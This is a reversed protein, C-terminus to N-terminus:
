VRTSERTLNTRLSRLASISETLSEVWEDIKSHDVASWDLQAFLDTPCPNAVREVTAGVVRNVDIRRTGRLLEPRDTKPKAAEGKAKRAVNARSLNGEDKADALAEEFQEDSVGDTLGYIGKETVDHPKAFTTVPVASTSFDADGQEGRQGHQNAVFPNKGQGYIQGREQGERIAVGLGREARRLMEAADLQIDKALGKRRTAEEITGVWAKFDSLAQPQTAEVAHALWGRAEALMSTVAIERAKPEMADLATMNAVPVVAGASPQVEATEATM